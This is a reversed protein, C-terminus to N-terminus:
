LSFTLIEPTRCAHIPSTARMTDGSPELLSFRFSIYPKHGVEQLEAQLARLQAQDLLSDGYEDVAGCVEGTAADVHLKLLKRQRDMTERFPLAVDDHVRVRGM